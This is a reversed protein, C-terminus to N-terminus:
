RQYEVTLIALEETYSFDTVKFVDSESFVQDFIYCEGNEITNDATDASELTLRIETCERANEANGKFGLIKFPDSTEGNEKFNITFNKDLTTVTM